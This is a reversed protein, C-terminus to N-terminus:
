NTIKFKKRLHHLSSNLSVYDVRRIRPDAMTMQPEIDMFVENGLGIVSGFNEIEPVDIQSHLHMRFGESDTSPCFYRSTRANLLVSLGYVSGPRRQRLPREETRNLIFGKGYDWKKWPAM